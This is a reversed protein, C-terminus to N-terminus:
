HSSNLRTSKRDIMGVEYDHVHAQGAAAASLSGSRNHSVERVSTHQHQRSVRSFFFDEARELRSRAPVNQLTCHAVLQKSRNALNKLSSSVEVRSHGRKQRSAHRM